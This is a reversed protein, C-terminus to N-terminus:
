ATAGPWEGVWRLRERTSTPRPGDKTSMALDSRLGGCRDQAEEFQSIAPSQGVALLERNVLDCACLVQPYVTAVADDVDNPAASRRKIEVRNGIPRIRRFPLALHDPDSRQRADDSELAEGSSRLISDIQFLQFRDM